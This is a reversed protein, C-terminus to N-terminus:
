RIVFRIPFKICSTHPKGRLLAPKFVWHRLAKEIAPRFEESGEGYIAIGEATGQENIIALVNVTVSTHKNKAHPRKLFSEPMRPTVTKIIRPDQTPIGQKQYSQWEAYARTYTNDVGQPMKLASNTTCGVLM